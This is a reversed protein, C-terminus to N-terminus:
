PRNTTRLRRRPPPDNGVPRLDLGPLLTLWRSIETTTGQFKAFSIHM